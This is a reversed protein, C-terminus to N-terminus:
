KAPSAVPATSASPPVWDRELLQKRTMMLLQNITLSLEDTATSVREGPRPAHLDPTDEKERVVEVLDRAKELLTKARVLEDLGQPSKLPTAAGIEYRDRAEKWLAHAEARLRDVEANLDIVVPPKPQVTSLQYGIALLVVMFIPTSVLFAKKWNEAAM